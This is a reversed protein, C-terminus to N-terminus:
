AAPAEAPTEGKKKPKPEIKELDERSSYVKANITFEKTGFRGLINKIVIADESASFKHALAKVVEARSPTVLSNLTAVIEKRNFLKNEKQSLVNFEM